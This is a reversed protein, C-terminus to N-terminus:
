RRINKKQAAIFEQSSFGSGSAFFDPSNQIQVAIGDLIAELEPVSNAELYSFVIMLDMRVGVFQQVAMSKIDASGLADTPLGQIFAISDQMFGDIIGETSGALEVALLTSAAVPEITANLSVASGTSVNSLEM